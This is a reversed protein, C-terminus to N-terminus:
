AAAGSVQTAVFNLQLQVTDAVGAVVPVQPINLGWDAYRITTTASGQLRDTTAPTVTADFTAEKTVGGITLNGVIQFPVAAGGAAGDPLGVLRTPEFTIYEHQATQLIRNQIARNRQESDTTLTRANITITGVQASDLDAPDLAIQGAVQSTTGVVTKPQGQLVEDIVFRAESADPVISYRRTAPDASAAASPELAVAQIPASAAPPPKLYSYTIAGTVALAVVILALAFKKM